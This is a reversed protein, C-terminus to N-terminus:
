FNCRVYQIGRRLKTVRVRSMPMMEGDAMILGGEVSIELASARIYKVFPLSLHTGSELALFFQIFDKRGWQADATCFVVDLGGDCLHALPAMMIDRSIDKIGCVSVLYMEGEIIKWPLTEDDFDLSAEDLFSSNSDLVAAPRKRRERTTFTSSTLTKRSPNEPGMRQSHNSTESVAKDEKRGGGYYEVCHPCSSRCTCKPFSTSLKDDPHIKAVVERKKSEWPLYRLKFSYKTPGCLIRYCGYVSFRTNGMWRLHESGRDVDNLLGCGFGMFAVRESFYPSGLHLSVPDDFREKGDSLFPMIATDHTPERHAKLERHKEEEYMEFQSEVRRRERKSMASAHFDVLNPNPSFRLYILDSVVTSCHILGLAATFPHLQDLSKALGCGSGSPITAVLPMVSDWGRLLGNETPYRDTALPEVTANSSSSTCSSSSSPGKNESQVERMKKLLALKRRHLGNVIEHVMGDGGVGVVVFHENIVNNLDAVYDECHHARKTVIVQVRHKSFHLVPLVMKRVVMEADGTGSVPSAFILINKVSKEYVRAFLRYKLEHLRQFDVVSIAKFDLSRICRLEGNPDIKVYHLFFSEKMAGIGAFPSPLASQNEHLEPTQARSNLIDSSGVRLPADHSVDEDTALTSPCHSSLSKIDKLGENSFRSVHCECSSSFPEPHSHSYVFDDKYDDGHGERKGFRLKIETMGSSFHKKVTSDTTKRLRQREIVEGETECNLVLFSPIRLLVRATDKSPNSEKITVIDTSASYKIECPQQRFTILASWEKKEESHLLLPDVVESM